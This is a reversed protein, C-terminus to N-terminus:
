KFELQLISQGAKRCVSVRAPPYSLEQHNRVQQPNNPTSQLLGQQLYRLHREFFMPDPREIRDSVSLSERRFHLIWRPNKRLKKLLDKLITKKYVELTNRKRDM